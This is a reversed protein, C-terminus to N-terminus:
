SERLARRILEEVTLSSEKQLIRQIKEQVPVRKYGLSILALVAEEGVPNIM